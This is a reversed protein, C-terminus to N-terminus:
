TIDPPLTIRVYITTSVSPVNPNFMYAPINPGVEGYIYCDSRAKAIVGYVTSTSQFTWNGNCYASPLAVIYIVNGNQKISSFFFFLPYYNPTGPPVVKVFFSNGVNQIFYNLVSIFFNSFLVKM